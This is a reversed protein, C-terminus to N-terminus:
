GALRFKCVFEGDPQKKTDSSSKRPLVRRHLWAATGRVDESSGRRKGGSRWDHCPRRMARCVKKQMSAWVQPLGTRTTAPPPGTSGLTGMASFRWIKM